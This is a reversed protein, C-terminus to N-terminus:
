SEADRPAESRSTQLKREAVTLAGLRLKKEDQVLHKLREKNADSLGLVQAFDLLADMRQQPPYSAILGRMTRFLVEGPAFLAQYGTLPSRTPPTLMGRTRVPSRPSVPMSALVEQILGKGLLSRLHTSVTTLAPEPDQHEHRRGCVRRHIESLKLPRGSQLQEEWLVGLVDLEGANPSPL